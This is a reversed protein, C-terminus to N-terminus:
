FVPCCRRVVFSLSSSDFSCIDTKGSNLGTYTVLLNTFAKTVVNDKMILGIIFLCDVIADSGFIEVWRLSFEM